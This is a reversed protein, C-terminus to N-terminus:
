SIPKILNRSILIRNRFHFFSKYGFAVRKIVKIYNNLGEITGNSYEYKLANEVYEGHKLLSSIATNMYDSINEGLRANLDKKLKVTNKTKIDYLLIQLADYTTALMPDVAISTKVLTQESIWHSFHTYHKFDTRNLKTENKLFLCWYRKLRKYEMSQKPFNAMAKVRTKNFARTLLQVIHFRDMVIEANPFMDKIISMYPAYMDICITEVHERATTSYRSFYHKLFRLQRNEAIDIIEYTECDAFIFSMSGKADKTSKFEDFMLHKPLYDFSPSFATYKSDVARSITSHSVYTMFAIDKQSLKLSLYSLIKLKVQKSIYCNPEVIDSTALFSHACEKFFFRQKKLRLLTPIGNCPLLKIDSPKTGYKIISYDENVCGCIPCYQPTYSLKASILNYTINKKKIKSINKSFEINPDKLQLLETIFNSTSM